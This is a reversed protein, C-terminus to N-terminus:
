ATPSSAQILRKVVEKGVVPEIEAVDACVVLQDRARSMGTYMVDRAVGERFGDVALVVIPRELGKFGMVTSYFVEDDMWFGDWLGDKGLEYEVRRHNAHRSKTTLVAIDGDPHGAELLRQVEEDAVDCAQSTTCQVFRVPPGQGGLYTMRDAAMPNLLAAIQETNRLNKTLTMFAMEVAPTGQRGAFVSQQEDGALFMQDKRLMGLLPPWWTDIFDQAEDVVLVDYTPKAHPLMLEPLTVEWWHQDADEGVDIGAVGVGLAHFTKVTIHRAVTDPKMAEVAKQVWRALGRSYCVFLVDNGDAAYRRAQEIALWTKGTGPGGSVYVRPNRRYAQLIDYQEETLRQVHEARADAVGILLAQPDGPSGLIDALERVDEATPRHTSTRRQNLARFVLEAANDLDGRAILSWRPIDPSPDEPGFDTAPFAVLSEFRLPGHTWGRNRAYSDLKRKIRDAQRAPDIRKPGDRTAQIWGSDDRTIQGGKVEIVAFGCGPIGVVLDAEYFDEHAHLRVNAALFSDAELQSRLKDWVLKETPHAFSPAPPILRPAVGDV